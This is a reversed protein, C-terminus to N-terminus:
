ALGLRRAVPNITWGQIVLSCLVIIFAINFYHQGNDIGSLAPVLALYIPIAGRLGVWSIFLKEKWAFFRTPLSCWVAVPRAIFILFTSIGLAPLTYAPLSSPTVLLGLTLLMSAQAIWAMVDNFQRIFVLKEHGSNAFTIGAIYVALFGSGGSINCGSFIALGGALVVVPYLGIELRSFRLLHVLGAAGAYGIVLGLGMQKLFVSAIELWSVASNDSLLSVCTTTLFIAMPDNIGSEVELTSKVRGKLQIDKQHLLLFVAAADTSAVISGILLGDLLSIGLLWMSFFGTLMATVLVGVTSLSLASRFAQRFSSLPTRLGGDFLIVALALSCIMHATNKNDFVIGGPGDEGFFIGIGLVALLVPTGLRTAVQGAMVSLLM